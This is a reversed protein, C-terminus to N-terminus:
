PGDSGGLLDELSRAGSNYVDMLAVEGGDLVRQALNTWLDPDSTTAILSGVARVFQGIGDLGTLLEVTRTTLEEIGDSSGLVQYLETLGEIAAQEVDLGALRDAVVAAGENLQQGLRQVSQYIREASAYEGEEAFFRGYYLLDDSLACLFEHQADGASFAALVTAADEDVGSAILAQERFRAEDASYATAVPLDRARDLLELAGDVDNADLLMKAQLYYPLANQQDLGALTDLERYAASPDPSSAAQTQALMLRAASNDAAKGVAMLLYSEREGPSLSAMAGLVAGVDADPSSAIRIAEERSLTAWQAFQAMQRPDTQGSRRAAIVEALAISSVDPPAVREFAEPPHTEALVAGRVQAFMADFADPTGPAGTDPETAQGAGQGVAVLDGPGGHGLGWPSTMRYVGASVLLVAAAAAIYWSAQAWGARSRRVPLAQLSGRKASDGASVARLVRGVLDCSPAEAKAVSAFRDLDGMLTRMWAIEGEDHDPSPEAKGDAIDAIVDYADLTSIRRLVSDTIDHQPAPTFRALRWKALDNRLQCIADYELRLKPSEVLQARLASASEPDLSGESLALLDEYDWRRGDQM